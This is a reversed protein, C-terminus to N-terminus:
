TASCIRWSAQCSGLLRRKAKSELEFAYYGCSSAMKNLEPITAASREHYLPAGVRLGNPDPEIKEEVTTWTNRMSTTM